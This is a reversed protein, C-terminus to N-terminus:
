PETLETRYSHRISETEAMSMKSPLGDQLGPIGCRSHTGPNHGAEGLPDDSDSDNGRAQEGTHAGCPGAGERDRLDERVLLEHAEDVATGLVGRDVHGAEAGNTGALLAMGERALPCLDQPGLDDCLEPVRTAESGRDHGVEGARACSGLLDGEDGVPDLAGDGGREEQRAVPRGGDHEM